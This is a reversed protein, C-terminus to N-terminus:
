KRQKNETEEEVIKKLVHSIWTDPNQYRVEPGEQWLEEALKLFQDKSFRRPFDLEQKEILGARNEELKV